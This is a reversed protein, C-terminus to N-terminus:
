NHHGTSWTNCREGEMVLCLDLVEQHSLGLNLNKPGLADSVEKYSLLGNGNTDFLRFAQLLYQTDQSAFWLVRIHSLPSARSHHLATLCVCSLM